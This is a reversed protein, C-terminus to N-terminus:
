LKSGTRPLRLGLLYSRSMKMSGQIFSLNLRSCSQTRMVIRSAVVGHSRPWFAQPCRASDRRNQNARIPSVVMARPMVASFLAVAGVAFTVLAKERRSLSDSRTSPRNTHLTQTTVRLATPGAIQEDVGFWIMTATSSSGARCGDAHPRVNGRGARRSSDRILGDRRRLGATGVVASMIAALLALIVAVQRLPGKRIEIVPRNM